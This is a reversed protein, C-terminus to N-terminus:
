MGALKEQWLRKTEELDPLEVTKVNDSDRREILKGGLLKYVRRWFANSSKVSYRVGHQRCFLCYGNFVQAKPVEKPWENGSDVLQDYGGTGNTDALIVSEDEISNALWSEVSDLSNLKQDLLAETVPPNRLDTTTWDWNLLDYAFAEYGGDDLQDQIAKFYRTDRAHQNNIDLVLFRREDMAAPVVWDENSAMMLNVHNSIEFADVGKPEITLRAETILAKLRGVSARDGAFVAEDAFIFIKDQLHSNFSGVLHKSMTLHASHPAFIRCLATGTISKGTGQGGRFAPCTGPRPGGPRQYSHACWAMLWNFTEDNGHCINEYLHDRLLGWDGQKPTIHFGRFMNYADPPCKSHDPEFVLSGYLRKQPSALWAEALKMPKGNGTDLVDSMYYNRFDDFSSFDREYGGGGDPLQIYRENMVLTKGKIRVVAHQSNFRDIFSPAPLGLLAAVDKWKKCQCATHYCNFAPMGDGYYFVAAASDGSRHESAWPCDIEWMWGAVGSAGVTAKKNRPNLSVLKGLTNAEFDPLNALGVPRSSAKELMSDTRAGELHKYLKGLATQRKRLKVDINLEPHPEGTVTMFYNHCFLEVEFPYHGKEYKKSKVDPLTGLMFMHLGNGSPSIETYTDFENALEKAMDVLKGTAPDVCNDVDIASIKHSHTFVYGVGDIDANAEYYAWADDFSAWTGPDNSRAMKGTNVDIPLKTWKVSGDAKQRPHLKFCVWTPISKMGDPIGDKNPGHLTPKVATTSQIAM